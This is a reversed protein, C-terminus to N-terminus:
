KNIEYPKIYYNKTLSTNNLIRICASSPFNVVEAGLM